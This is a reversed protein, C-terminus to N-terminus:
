DCALRGAVGGPTAALAGARGQRSQAQRLEEAAKVAEDAIAVAATRDHDAKQMAAQAQRLEAVATDARKREAQEAEEASKAQAETTGLRVHM